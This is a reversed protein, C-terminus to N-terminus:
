KNLLEELIVVEKNIKKPESVELFTDKSQKVSTEINENGGSFCAMFEKYDLEVERIVEKGNYKGNGYKKLYFTFDETFSISLFYGKGGENRILKSPHWVKYGEYGSKKPLKILHAKGTEVEINQTNLYAKYWM